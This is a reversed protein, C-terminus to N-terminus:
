GWRCFFRYQHTLRVRRGELLTRRVCWFLHLTRGPCSLHRAIGARSPEDRRNAGPREFFAPRRGPGAATVPRIKQWNNNYVALRLQSGLSIRRGPYDGTLSFGPAPAPVEPAPKGPKGGKGMIFRAAATRRGGSFPFDAVPSGEGSKRSLAGLVRGSRLM